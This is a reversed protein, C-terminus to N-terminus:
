LLRLHESVLALFTRNSDGAYVLLFRGSRTASHDPGVWQEGSLEYGQAELVATASVAEDAATYAFVLVSGTKSGVTLLEDPRPLEQLMEDLEAFERSSGDTGAPVYEASVAEVNLALANPAADFEPAARGGSLIILGAIVFVACAVVGQFSRRTTGVPEPPAVESGDPEQILLDTRLSETSPTAPAPAHTQQSVATPDEYPASLGTGLLAAPVESSREEASVPDQGYGVQGDAVQEGPISEGFVPLDFATEVLPHDESTSEIAAGATKAPEDSSTDGNMLGDLESLLALGGLDKGSPEPAVLGVPVAEPSEITPPNSALPDSPGTLPSESVIPESVTPLNQLRLPDARLEPLVWHRPEPGSLDPTQSFEPSAAALGHTDM